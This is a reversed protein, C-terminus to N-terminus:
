KRWSKEFLKSLEQPHDIKSPRLDLKRKAMMKLGLDMDSLFKGTRLKYRLMIELKHTRGHRKISDMVERHFDLVGPEAVVLGEELCMRRLADMVRSVDINMPCVASCTHCGVCLWITNSELLERRLGFQLRRMVGHPGLDMHDYFPCGSSCTMCQYCRRFDAGALVQVDDALGPDYDPSSRSQDSPRSPQNTNLYRM